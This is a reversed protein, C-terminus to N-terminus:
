TSSYLQLNREGTEPETVIESNEPKNRSDPEFGEKKKFQKLIWGKKWM